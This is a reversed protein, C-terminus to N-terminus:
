MTVRVRVCGSRAEDVWSAAGRASHQMADSSWGGGGRRRQAARGCAVGKEAEDVPWLHPHATAARRTAEIRLPPSPRREGRRRSVSLRSRQSAPSAYHIPSKMKKAEILLNYFFTSYDDPQGRVFPGDHRHCPGHLPSRTTGLERFTFPFQHFPSTTPDFV